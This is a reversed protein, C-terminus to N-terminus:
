KCISCSDKVQEWLSSNDERPLDANNAAALTKSVELVIEQQKITLNQVNDLIQQLLDHEKSDM